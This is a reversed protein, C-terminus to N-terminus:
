DESLLIHTKGTELRIPEAQRRALTARRCALRAQVQAVRAQVASINIRDRGLLIQTRVPCDTGGMSIQKVSALGRDSVQAVWDAGTNLLSHSLGFALVGAAALYWARDSIM